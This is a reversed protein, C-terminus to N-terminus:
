DNDIIKFEVKKDIFNALDNAKELLHKIFDEVEIPESKWFVTELEDVRLDFHVHTNKTMLQM